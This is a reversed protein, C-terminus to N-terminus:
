CNESKSMVENEPNNVNNLERSNACRHCICSRGRQRLKLPICDLVAHSITQDFCWCCIESSIKAAVACNNERNCLPCRTGSTDPISSISMNTTM